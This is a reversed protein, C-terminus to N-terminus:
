EILSDICARGYALTFVCMPLDQGKGMMGAWVVDVVAFVAHNASVGEM